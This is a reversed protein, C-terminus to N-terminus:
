IGEKKKAEGGTGDILADSGVFMEGYLYKTESVEPLTIVPIYSFGIRVFLITILNFAKTVIGVIVTAMLPVSIVTSPLLEIVM